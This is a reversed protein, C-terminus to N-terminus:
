LLHLGATPLKEGNIKTKHTLQHSCALRHQKPNTDRAKQFHPSPHHYKEEVIAGPDVCRCRGKGLCEGTSPNPAPSKLGWSNQHRQTNAKVTDLKEISPPNILVIDLDISDMPIM